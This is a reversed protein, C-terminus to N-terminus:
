PKQIQFTSINRLDLDFAQEFLGRFSFLAPCFDRRRYSEEKKALHRM